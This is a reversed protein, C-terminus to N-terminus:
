ADLPHADILELARAQTATPQTLQEFSAGTDQLRITNRVRTSLETLLTALSHCPEGATTRKTQTKRKAATSRSAKAVPDPQTPPQEDDFLLPKWAQRLHWALYYSLMCLFVHAKVRQELQHHTPRLELRGNLTRFAREVEKLQKDARVVDPAKLEAGPVSTRLVYVGDLAAEAPSRSRSAGTATPFGRALGSSRKYPHTGFVAVEDTSRLRGTALACHVAPRLHM